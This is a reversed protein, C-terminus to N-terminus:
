SVQVVLRELIELLQAPKPPKSLIEDAGRLGSRVGGMYSDAGERVVEDNGTLLVVPLDFWRADKRITLLLDLGSRGPMMVDLIILDILHKKLESVALSSTSASAVDYGNDELFTCLYEVIDPDDDVILIRSKRM